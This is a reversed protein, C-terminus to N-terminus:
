VKLKLRTEARFEYHEYNIVIKKSFVLINTCTCQVLGLNSSTQISVFTITHIYLQQQSGAELNICFDCTCFGM